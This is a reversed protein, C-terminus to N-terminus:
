ECDRRPLIPPAAALVRRRRRTMPPLWWVRAVMDRKRKYRVATPYIGHTLRITAPFRDNDGENYNADFNTM